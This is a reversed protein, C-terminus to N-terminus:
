FGYPKCTEAHNKFERSIPDFNNSYSYVVKLGHWFLVAM